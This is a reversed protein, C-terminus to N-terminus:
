GAFSPEPLREAARPEADSELALHYNSTENSVEERRGDLQGHLRVPRDLAHHSHLPLRQHPAREWGTKPEMPSTPLGRWGKKPELPSTPLGRWGTKPELPSTPLGEWGTKPEQFVECM